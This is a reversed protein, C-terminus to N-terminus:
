KFEKRDEDRGKPESASSKIGITWEELELM